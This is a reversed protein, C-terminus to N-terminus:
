ETEKTIESMEMTEMVTQEHLGGTPTELRLLAYVLSDLRGASRGRYHYDATIM